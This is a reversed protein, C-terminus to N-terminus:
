GNIKEKVEENVKKLCELKEKNKIYADIVEKTWLVGAVAKVRNDENTIDQDPAIVHRHYTEAIKVGDKLVRNTRRVQIQGDELVEIKDIVVQESYM